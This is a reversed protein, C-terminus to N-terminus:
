GEVVEWGGWLVSERFVGLPVGLGVGFDDCYGYVSFYSVDAVNCVAYQIYM